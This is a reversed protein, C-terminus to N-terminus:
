DIVCSIWCTMPGFNYITNENRIKMQLESNQPNNIIVLLSLSALPNRDDYNSPVLDFNVTDVRNIITVMLAGM